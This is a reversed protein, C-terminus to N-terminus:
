YIVMVSFDSNITDDDDGYSIRISFTSGSVDYVVASVNGGNSIATAIIAPTSTPAQSLTLTYRGNASRTVSNFGKNTVFSPSNPGFGLVYAHARVGYVPAPGSQGGDLKAATISANSVTSATTASTANGNLPGNFSAASIAGARLPADDTLTANRIQLGTGGREHVISAGSSGDANLLIAVDGTGSRAQIAATDATTQSNRIARFSGYTELTKSSGIFKSVANYKGDYVTTDLFNEVGGPNNEYNIAVGSNLTTASYAGNIQSSVIELNGIFQHSSVLSNDPKAALGRIVIDGTGANTLTLAGNVGSARIIRANGGSVTTASSYLDLSSEVDTGSTGLSVRRQLGTTGITWSPGGASLKAPTIEGDKIKAAVVSNTALKSETVSGSNISVAISVNATGDFSPVPSTTLDGTITFTRPVLLREAVSGGILAKDITITNLSNNPDAIQLINSTVFSANLLAASKIGLRDRMTTKEVDTPINNPHSGLNIPTTM